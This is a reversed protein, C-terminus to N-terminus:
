EGVLLPMRYELMISLTIQHTLAIKKGPTRKELAVIIVWHTM